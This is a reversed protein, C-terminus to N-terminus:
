YGSYNSAERILTSFVFRHTHIYTNLINVVYDYLTALTHTGKLEIIMRIM